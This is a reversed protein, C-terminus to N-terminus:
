KIKSAMTLFDKWHEDKGFFDHALLLVKDLKTEKNPVEGEVYDENIAYISNAYGIVPIGSVVRRQSGEQRSGVIKILGAKRLEATRKEFSAHPLSFIDAIQRASLGDPYKRLTSLILLKHSRIKSQTLKDIYADISNTYNEM